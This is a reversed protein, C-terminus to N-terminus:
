TQVQAVHWCPSNVNLQPQKLTQTLDKGRGRRTGRSGKPPKKFTDVMDKDHRSNVVSKLLVRAEDTTYDSAESAVCCAAFACVKLLYKLVLEVNCAHQPSPSAILTQYCTSLSCDVQNM